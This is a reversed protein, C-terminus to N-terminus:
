PRSGPALPRAPAGLLGYGDLRNRYYYLLSPDGVRLWEGRREIVPSAHYTGFTALAQRVVQTVDDTRLKPSLLIRGKKELAHLEVLARSLEAHIEAEKVGVDAGLGRLLRFLDPERSDRRVREFLTYALLSTPLAVTDQRYTEVLRTALTRTYEADRADDAMLRGRVLLYRSPDVARGRPDLSRGNEDVANGFPDLARGFQVHVSLDLELLSKLFAVWRGLQEFEDHVDVFHPGGETRLYDGALTAAELVLPYTLTCPVVFIRPRRKQAELAHRYAIPATGLLGLKLHEEIAGSRSRTGGPFVLSHQGRELLLTAYAKVTERYLPDHKKRDITFAGVNRMVYGILRSTFLNLGAGYAVPPLGLRHVAHGLLVSDLNSVHTPALVVTGLEFLSRLATLEGGILVREDVDFVRGPHGLKPIFGQMLGTLAAPLLRAVGAYVRPEFHGSIEEVYREVVQLILTRWEEPTGHVLRRRLGAIFERDAAERLDGDARALRTLETSITEQLMEELRPGAPTEARALAHDVVRREVEHAIEEGAVVHARGHAQEKAARLTTGMM